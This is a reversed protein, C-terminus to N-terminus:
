RPGSPRTADAAPGRAAEREVAAMAAGVTGADNLLTAPVVPPRVTLLPIFKDAQKSVGGGLIVLSPWLIRDIAHLHEDLDVAWQEWTKKDRVRAAAASRKEADKGRIEMHGLETNPVLEGDNFLGSGVGTGLTLTLVVGTQGRGAGFRMEALGAADADNLVFVSRRLVNRLVSQLDFNVWSADVNAATKAVGDVVVCPIGVGVPADPSALPAMEAVIRAIIEVVYDPKSPQPTKVKLRERLLAGSDVDVASGKVASGGVDIGIATRHGSSGVGGAAGATQGTRAAAM